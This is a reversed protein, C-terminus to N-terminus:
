ELFLKGGRRRVHHDGPLNAKAPSDAELLSLAARVERLGPEPIGHRTLWAHLLRQRIAPHWERITELALARPLEIGSLVEEFYEVDLRALEATRLLPPVVDRDLLQNLLPLLENRIRNRTQRGSRNTADEQWTWGHAVAHASLEQKRFGLLPRCLQLTRRGVRIATRPAMGALGGLGAGRFLNFLMTEAQDDAHHALLIARTGVERACEAWFAHRARRGAAELSLREKRAAAPVDATGLRFPLSLERALEKVFGADKRAGGGRIGHDLHCVTLKRFGAGVLIRLLTM